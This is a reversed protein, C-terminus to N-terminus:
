RPGYERERAADGSAGPKELLSLRVAEPVVELPAL